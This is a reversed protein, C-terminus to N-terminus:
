KAQIEVRVQQLVEQVIAPKSIPVCVPLDPRLCLRRITENVIRQIDEDTLEYPPGPRGPLGPLGRNGNSGNRGSPGQPGQAGTDGKPGRPGRVPKQFRELRNALIRLQAPTIQNLSKNILNNVFERCESQAQCSVETFNEIREVKDRTSEGRWTTFLALVIVFIYAAFARRDKVQFFNRM